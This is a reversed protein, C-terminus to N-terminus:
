GMAHALEDALAARLAAVVGAADAPAAGAAAAACVTVRFQLRTRPDGELRALALVGAFRGAGAANDPSADLRGAGPAPPAFGCAALLSAAAERSLPPVGPPRSVMQQQKLPSGAPRAAGWAAFFPGPAAAEPAPAVFRLLPVPLPLTLCVQRGGCAYDLRLLPLTAAGAGRLPLPPAAARLSLREQQGPAVAAPAASALSVAAADAGGQQQPPLVTAVLGTIARSPLPSKNGLFLDLACGSLGVGVQLLGDEYLLGRREGSLGSGGGEGGGPLL